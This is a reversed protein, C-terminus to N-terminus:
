FGGGPGPAQGQTSPGGVGRPDSNFRGINGVFQQLVTLENGLTRTTNPDPSVEQAQALDRRSINSVIGNADFDVRVVDQGVIESQYFSRTETRQSVYFWSAGDFTGVSSPSGLLREVEERSTTGPRISAIADPDLQYGHKTVTPACAGATLLLVAGGMLNCLLKGTSRM